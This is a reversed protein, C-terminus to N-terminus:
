PLELALPPFHQLRHFDPSDGPVPYCALHRRAAGAGHIAYANATWPAPPLWDAPILTEASWRNIQHTLQVRLPLGQAVVQRIGQLQLVLHHGGPGLEIELYRNGPGCLFFEVVEHEWLRPTPGPPGPPRPDGHDWAEVRLALDGDRWALGVRAWEDSDAPQGDWTQRIELWRM